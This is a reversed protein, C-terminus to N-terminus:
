YRMDATFKFGGGQESTNPYGSFGMGGGDVGSGSDGPKPLISGTIDTLVLDGSRIKDLQAEAWEIMSNGEDNNNGFQDLKIHGAALSKTIQTIFNNVPAAFPVVYIGALKGNIQDQASRRFSDIYPDTINQNKEFGAASRIDDLTAYIGVAGGRAALSNSLPTEENTISNFYTYKYWYDSSGIPDTYSTSLQDSDIAVGLPTIAAFSGDAPQTGDVNAARYIKIKDGFLVLVDEYQDHRLRLPNTTAITAGVVTQVTTIEATSAGARGVLMFDNAAIDQNNDLVISTAGPEVNAALRAREQINVSIFNDIKLTSSM